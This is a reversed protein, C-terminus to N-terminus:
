KYGKLTHTLSIDFIVVNRDFKSGIGLLRKSHSFKIISAESIKLMSHGILQIDTNFAYVNGQCDVLIFVNDVLETIRIIALNDM